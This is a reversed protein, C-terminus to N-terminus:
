TTAVLPDAASQGEDSAARAAARLRVPVANLISQGVVSEVRQDDTWDNASVGAHQGATKQWEAAPAHGWGHPLSVVGPRMEDTLKVTVHGRHTRSELVALDDDRVNARAADDPHVYLVCRERGAVLEPVNHMWSNNSRLDRRGILLLEDASPPADALERALGDMAALLPAADLHAKGDKHTVRHALGPELPGFDLGHEARRLKKLNLGKSWPLYRDGHPGLRLLLDAMQEPRWRLGVRRAARYAADLLPMGTPGGGLRYCLELLIEWDTLEGPSQELVPPSIRAVNRVAVSGSILDIHDEVMGWASPLIIDAHRTTENIYLDVSVMFDLKGLARAMRPGNPSSLVPNGAVTVVGRVQGVGPTEIEEALVSTPVEGLTEPLGRVRSKWRAHGDGNLKLAPAIDFAPINFMWGGIAGLRGAALNLLDTAFTALTSHPSVCVGMRTYCVSSPAAAFERALRRIIEAAVGIHPAVREPTFAGLRSEVQQWGISLQNIAQRDILNEEVLTQTMALLLAADGGPRISIHEDADRATETRRPDIVVLRGGRERLKKLRSRVDPATFVSGNSVRPNAGICLFYQTRDIDPVPLALSNGYVYYSAAFRPATDQSSASMNNRTGLAKVLGSRILLIGHSHVIPNGMYLAVADAGYQSRIARLRDATISFADDWSIPEFAGSVTRRMPVRLRDPDNHIAGIAVGKPCVYGRSLPDDEDGRVAVIRNDVVEFALGCAAECLTCARYVTRSM